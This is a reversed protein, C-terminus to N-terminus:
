ENYCLKMLKNHIFKKTIRVYLMNLYDNTFLNKLFFLLVKHRTNLLSELKGRSISSFKQNRQKKYPTLNINYYLNCIFHYSSYSLLNSNNLFEKKSFILDVYKSANDVAIIKKKLFLDDAISISKRYFCDPEDETYFTFNNNSALIARFHLEIDQYRNFNEDFGGIELFFDKKWFTSTIQWIARSGAFLYKVRENHLKPMKKVTWNNVNNVFSAMRKVIFKDNSNQILDIRKKICDKSLLDDADLFIIYKGNSNDVGINRCTSGNKPLRDRKVLKIRSDKQQYQKIIDSSKDTSGDDVCIIEWYNYTQNIVSEITESLSSENNYFPIIISVLSNM